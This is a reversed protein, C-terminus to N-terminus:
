VYLAPNYEAASMMKNWHELQLVYKRGSKLNVEIEGSKIM